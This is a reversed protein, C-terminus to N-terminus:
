QGYRRRLTKLYEKQGDSLRCGDLAKQITKTHIKPLLLKKQLFIIADDYHKVLADNFFWAVM